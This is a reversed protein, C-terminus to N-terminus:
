ATRRPFTLVVPIGLTALVQDPDQFSSDMYEVAYAIGVSVCLALCFAILVIMPWSLAPLVPIAPPVAIAVNAIRTSDLADSIREQERKALYTLYNQEDAKVERLLDQHDISQQDLEVLQNELTAISRKAAAMTAGQAARDAETRALEERLVEFTQDRDTAETM